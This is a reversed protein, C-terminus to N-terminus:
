KGRAQILIFCGVIQPQVLVPSTAIKNLSNRLNFLSVWIQLNWLSTFKKFNLVSM